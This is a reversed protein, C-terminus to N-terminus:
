PIQRRPPTFIPTPIPTPNVIPTPKPIAVRPAERPIFQGSREWEAVHAFREQIKAIEALHPLEGPVHGEAYRNQWDAALDYLFTELPNESVIDRRQADLHDLLKRLMVGLAFLDVSYNLRQWAQPPKGAKGKRALRQNEEEVLQDERLIAKFYPSIYDAAAADPAIPLAQTLEWTRTDPWVSFSFDILSLRAYDLRLGDETLPTGLYGLCINDAKIDCHIIGDQHLGHLAQLCACLLRAIDAHDAFLPGIRDPRHAPSVRLKLWNDLSPGADQTDVQKVAAGGYEVRKPRAVQPTKVSAFHSVFRIERETWYSFDRGDATKLFRKRYFGLGDDDLQREVEVYDFQRIQWHTRGDLFFFQQLAPHHPNM